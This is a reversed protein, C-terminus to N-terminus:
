PRDSMARKRTASTIQTRAPRKWACKPLRSTSSSASYPDQAPREAGTAGEADAAGALRGTTAGAAGETDAAGEADAASQSGATAEAGAAGEAGPRM